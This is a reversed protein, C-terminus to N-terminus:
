TSRHLRATAYIRMVPIRDRLIAGGYFRLSSHWGDPYLIGSRAAGIDGSILIIFGVPTKRLFLVRRFQFVKTPANNIHILYQDTKKRRLLLKHFFIYQLYLFFFHKKLIFNANKHICVKFIYRLFSIEWM